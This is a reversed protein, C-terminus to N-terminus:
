TEVGRQPPKGAADPRWPHREPFRVVRDRVKENLFAAMRYLDHYEERTIGNLEAFPFFHPSWERHPIEALYDENDRHEPERAYPHVAQPDAGGPPQSGRLQAPHDAGAPGRTPRDVRLRQAPQGCGEAGGGAPLSRVKKYAQVDLETGAEAEEFHAEAVQKDAIVRAIEPTVKAPNLGCIFHYRLHKHM